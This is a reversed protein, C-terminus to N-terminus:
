GKVGYRSSRACIPRHATVAPDLSWHFGHSPDQAKRSRPWRWRRAVVNRWRLLHSGHRATAAVAFQRHCSPMNDREPGLVRLIAVFEDVCAGAGRSTVSAHAFGSAARCAIPAGISRLNASCIAMFPNEDWGASPENRPNKTMSSPEFIVPDWDNELAPPLEGVDVRREFRQPVAGARDARSPFGVMAHLPPHLRLPKRRAAAFFDPAIAILWVPPCALRLSSWGNSEPSTDPPM